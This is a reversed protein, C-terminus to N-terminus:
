FQKWKTTGTDFTLEVFNENFDLWPFANKFTGERTLTEYTLQKVYSEKSTIGDNLKSWRAFFLIDDDSKLEIRIRNVFPPSGENHLVGLFEKNDIKIKM